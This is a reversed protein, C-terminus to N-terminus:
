RVTNRLIVAVAEPSCRLIKALREHTYYKPDSDRLQRVLENRRAHKQRSMQEADKAALHAERAQSELVNHVPSM